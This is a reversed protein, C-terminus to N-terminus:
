GAGALAASPSQRLKAFIIGHTVLYFPVLVTPILLWPMHQIAASGEGAHIIQFAFGNSSLTGLTVALILDITGFLNWGWVLTPSANGRIAAIALPLAAAGTIVDGWGASYPFPGGLRDTVALFLFFAGFVRMINLGILLQMPLALLAHRARMSLWALMGTVILPLVVMLGILPFELAMRAQFAGSGYLAFPLGAWTGAVGAFVLRGRQSVALANTMLAINIIVAAVLVVSAIFDLTM